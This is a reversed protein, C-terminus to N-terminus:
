HSLERPLMIRGSLVDNLLQKLTVRRDTKGILETPASVPESWSVGFLEVAEWDWTEPDGRWMGQTTKLVPLGYHLGVKRITIASEFPVSLQNMRQDNEQFIWLQNKMAILQQQGILVAGVPKETTKLVPSTEQFLIGNVHSYRTNGARFATLHSPRQHDYLQDLWASRLEYATLRQEPLFTLLLFAVLWVLVMVTLVFWFLHILLQKM